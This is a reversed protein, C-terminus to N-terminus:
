CHYYIPLVNASAIKPAIPNAIPDRENRAAGKSAVQNGVITISWATANAMILPAAPAAILVVMTLM